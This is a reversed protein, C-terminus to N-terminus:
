SLRQQIKMRKPASADSNEMPQVEPVQFSQTGEDYTITGTPGWPQGSIGCLIDARWSSEEPMRRALRARVVLLDLRGWGLEQCGGQPWLEELLSVLSAIFYRVYLHCCKAKTGKKGRLKEYATKGDEYVQSKNYMDAVHEALWAMVPLHVDVGKGVKRELDLKHTRFIKEFSQVGREVLGNSKSDHVSSHEIIATIARSNWEVGGRYM